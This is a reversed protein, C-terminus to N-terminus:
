EDAEDGEILDKAMLDLMQDQCEKSCYGPYDQSLAGKGCVPCAFVQCVSVQTGWLASLKKQVGFLTNNRRDLYYDKTGDASKGRFELSHIWAGWRADMQCEADAKHKADKAEREQKTIEARRQKIAFELERLTHRDQVKSVEQVIAETM